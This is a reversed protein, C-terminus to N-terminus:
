ASTDELACHSYLYHYDGIMMNGMQWTPPSILPKLLNVESTLSSSSTSILHALDAGNDDISWDYDYDYDYDYDDYDYDNYDDHDFLGPM